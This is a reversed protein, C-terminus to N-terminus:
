SGSNNSFFFDSSPPFISFHRPLTNGQMGLKKDFIPLSLLLRPLVWQEGPTMTPLTRLNPAISFSLVCDVIGECSFRGPSTALIDAKLNTDVVKIAEM